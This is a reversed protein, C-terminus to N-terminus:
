VKQSILNMRVTQNPCIREPLFPQKVPTPTIKPLIKPKTPAKVPM